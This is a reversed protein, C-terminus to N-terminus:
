RRRARRRAPCQPGGCGTVRDFTAALCTRGARPCARTLMSLYHDAIPEGPLGLTRRAREIHQEDPAEVEVFRGIVPLEDLEILCGGLRWSARRKQVTLVPLLGAAALAAAVAEADDVRTQIERRIKVRRSGGAPGKFTLLPRADAGSRAARLLRVRRIRLGQDAALLRRDPTDFYCDTQVATQVYVAGARRLARRVPGFSEVRFKAEKEHPM